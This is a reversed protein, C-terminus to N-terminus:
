PRRRRRSPQDAVIRALRGSAHCSRPSSLHSSDYRLRRSLVYRQSAHYRFSTDRVSASFNPATRRCRAYSSRRTSPTRKSPLSYGLAKSPVQRVSPSCMWLDVLPFYFYTFLICVEDECRLLKGERGVVVHHGDGDESHEFRFTVYPEGASSAYSTGMGSSNGIGDGGSGLPEGGQGSSSASVAGTSFPRTSEGDALQSSSDGGSGSGVNTTNGGSHVGDRISRRSRASDGSGAASTVDRPPLHVISPDTVHVPSPDREGPSTVGPAPPSRFAAGGQALLSLGPPYRSDYADREDDADAAAAAEASRPQPAAIFTRPGESGGAAPFDRYNPSRARRKRRKPKSSAAAAAEAQRASELTEGLSITNQRTLPPSTPPSTVLPPSTAGEQSASESEVSSSPQINSLLTRTPYVFSSGEAPPNNPNSAM